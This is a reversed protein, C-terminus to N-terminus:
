KIANVLGLKRESEDSVKLLKTAAGHTGHRVGQKELLPRLKARVSEQQLGTEGVYIFLSQVLAPKVNLAMIVQM